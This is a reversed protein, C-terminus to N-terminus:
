LLIFHGTLLMLTVANFLNRGSKLFSMAALALTHPHTQSHFYPQIVPLTVALNQLLPM